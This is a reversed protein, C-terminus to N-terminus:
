ESQLLSAATGAWGPLVGDGPVVELGTYIENERDAGFVHVCQSYPDVIWVLPVGEAAYRRAVAEVESWAASAPVIDVVLDPPVTMPQDQGEVRGQRLYIIDPWLDDALRAAPRLAV